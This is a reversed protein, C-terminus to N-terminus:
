LTKRLKKLWKIFAPKKLYKGQEVARVAQSRYLIGIFNNAVIREVNLVDMFLQLTVYQQSLMADVLLEKQDKSFTKIWGNLKDLKTLESTDQELLSYERYGMSPKDYIHKLFSVATRAHKELVMLNTGNDTSFCRGAVAASLKALKYRINEGQVLPISSSYRNALKMSAALIFEEADRSFTVQSQTRSWVWLLVKRLSGQDYQSQTETVVGRNITEIDVEGKQVVMALDFRAVDEGTRVLDMIASVGSPFSDVARGKRPNAIWILRTNARTKSQIGGKSIEAIGESRIRSLNGLIGDSLGSFEDIVVLRGHNLPIAGWSLSFNDGVTTLGGALGMLSANEGSVVEGIDYFRVLGEAVQGKGCRTDGLLLLEISGKPLPTKCFVIDSPGHFCLDVAAHLDWREYIRTHNYALYDCIERIIQKPTKKRFLKKLDKVEQHSLKFDRISDVSGQARTVLLLSEKSRPHITPICNIRYPTNTEIGHGTFVGAQNVYENEDQSKSHSLAPIMQVHELNQWERVKIRVKCKAPIGLEQKTQLEVSRTYLWDVVDPDDPPIHHELSGTRTAGCVCSECKQGICQVDMRRPIVHPAHYKANILVDCEVDAGIYEAQSAKSLPVLDFTRKKPQKLYGTRHVIRRLEEMSGNHKLLYDTLDKGRPVVINKLSQLDSAVLRSAAAHAGEQGPKDSDFCIVVDKGRLATLKSHAILSWVGVGGTLTVCNLGEQRALIADPEGEFLWIEEQDIDFPNCLPNLPFWDGTRGGSMGVVPM